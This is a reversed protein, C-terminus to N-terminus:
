GNQNSHSENDNTNCVVMNVRGNQVYFSFRFCIGDKQCSQLFFFFLCPRFLLSVLAIEILTRPFVGIKPAMVVRDVTSYARDIVMNFTASASAIAVTINVVIVIGIAIGIGSSSFRGNWTPQDEGVSVVHEFRLFRSVEVFVDAICNMHVAVQPFLVCGVDFDLKVVVPVAEVDNVGEVRSEDVGEEVFGVSGVRGIDAAHDGQVTVAPIVEVHVNLRDARAIWLWVNIKDGRPLAGPGPKKLRNQRNRRHM